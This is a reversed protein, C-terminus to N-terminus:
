PGCTKELMGRCEQEGATPLLCSVRNWLARRIRSPQWGQEQPDQYLNQPCPGGGVVGEFGLGGHSSDQRGSGQWM